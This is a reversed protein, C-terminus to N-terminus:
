VRSFSASLKEQQKGLEECRDQEYKMGHYTGDKTEKHPDRCKKRLMKPLRKETYKRDPLICMMVQIERQSGRNRMRLGYINFLCNPEPSIPFTNQLINLQLKNTFQALVTASTVSFESLLHM